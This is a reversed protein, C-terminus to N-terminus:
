RPRVRRDVRGAHTYLPSTLVPWSDRRSLEPPPPAFPGVWTGESECNPCPHEPLGGNEVAETHWCRECLVEYM